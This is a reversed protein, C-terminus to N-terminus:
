EKEFTAINLNIVGDEQAQKLAKEIYPTLEKRIPGFTYRHNDRSHTVIYSRYYDRWSPPIFSAIFSM